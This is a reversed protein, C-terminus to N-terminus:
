ESGGHQVSWGSPDRYWAQLSSVDESSMLGQEAAVEILVPFSSLTELPIDAQKFARVAVDLGYTFIALVGAVDLGAERLPPVVATSSMGTSVLDEVVVVRSGPEIFGEVRNERGHTKSSSRVYAMPVDLADALWAAHPIGATATGVVANIEWGVRSLREKFADRIRKRVAPHGLTLRNDCYVPSRRGSAWVYPRTPSLTVAGISLLDRAINRATDEFDPM